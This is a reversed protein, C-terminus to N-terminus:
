FLYPVVVAVVASLAAAVSLHVAGVAGSRPKTGSAGPSNTANWSHNTLLGTITNNLLPIHTVDLNTYNLASAAFKFVNALTTNADGRNLSGLDWNLEVTHLASYHTYFTDDTTNKLNDPIAGGILCSWVQNRETYSESEDFTILVLADRMFTANALTTRLFGDLWNGAFTGNTDHGDNTINPTYFSYAPVNNNAVDTKFLEGPVVNASRTQNLGISDFIIAPNHKRVYSGNKASYGTWGPAPIDENYSKWTLGKKELLDFVSSQNAPIDYYGDDNIGFNTGAVSAVYNPESPHTIGNYNTLVIGQEAIAQFQPLTNITAFDENELWIQLFYKFVKGTPAAPANTNNYAAATATPFASIVVPSGSIFASTPTQAQVLSLASLTSLVAVTLKQM